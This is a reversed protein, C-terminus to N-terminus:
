WQEKFCLLMEQRIREENKFEKSEWMIRGCRTCTIKSGKPAQIFHGCKYCRYEIM